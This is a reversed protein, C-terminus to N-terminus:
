AIAKGNRFCFFGRMRYIGLAPGPALLLFLYAESLPVGLLQISGITIAFGISNVITLATGKNEAPAAHAVLSSFQPSDSAVTTGWILYFILTIGPISVYYFAPSLLCCIGSTLLSALAVRGSGFRPSLFGGVVCGLAGVSIIVFTVVSADWSSGSRILYAQWVVPCWTWFAYLEWMHGFYGFAAASFDRSQFLTPIVSPNFKNAAKHYPGNPVALVLLLGGSAALLSTEYLLLKWSQPIQRLLFPFATGFVLAGVLLGLARGLGQKYWDAAVKMGIPYIGALSVGTLCRLITMGALGKALVPILANFAAGSLASVLFVHTPLFRDAINTIASLLTGVIFGAQVASTLIQLSSDPLGLEGVFEPLVANGAFWLSTGAFQSYVICPLVRFPPTIDISSEEKEDSGIEKEVDEEEDVVSCKDESSSERSEGQTDM